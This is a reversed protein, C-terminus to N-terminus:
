LTARTSLLEKEERGSQVKLQLPFKANYRWSNSSLATVLPDLWDVDNQFRTSGDSMVVRGGMSRIFMNIQALGLGEFVGRQALCCPPSLGLFSVPGQKM